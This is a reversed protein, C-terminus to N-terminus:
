LHLLKGVKGHKIFAKTGDKFGVDCIFGKDEATEVIGQLVMNTQVNSITLYKNITEPVISLQLKRKIGSGRKTDYLKGEYEGTV